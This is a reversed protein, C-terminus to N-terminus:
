LFVHKQPYLHQSDRSQLDGVDINVNFNDQSHTSYYQIPSYLYMHLTLIYILCLGM